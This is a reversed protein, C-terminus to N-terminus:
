RGVEIGYYHSDKPAKLKKITAVTSCWRKRLAPWTLFLLGAGKAPDFVIHRSGLRGFHVVWHEWQDVCLLVPFPVDTLFLKAGVKDTCIVEFPVFGCRKVGRVIKFNDTGAKTTVCLNAFYRQSRRYGYFELAAQLSAPGCWFDREQHKPM